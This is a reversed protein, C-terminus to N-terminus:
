FDDGRSLVEKGGPRLLITHEFQATYCGRVDCLPPYAEVIGREILQKLALTYRAQGKRVLWRHCWALTSFEREIVGLLQKANPM